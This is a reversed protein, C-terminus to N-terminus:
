TAMSEAMGLHMKLIPPAGTAASKLAPAEGRKSEATFLAIAAKHASIQSQRYKIIFSRGSLKGLSSLSAAHSASPASPPTLGV